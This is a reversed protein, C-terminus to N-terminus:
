GKPPGAIAPLVFSFVSGRGLTSAVEVRGEHAEVIGRAIALGLGTGRKAAGRRQWFRDFVHPLDSEAIGRGTDEVEFRVGEPVRLARLTVQGGPLTFKCANLGLNALVQTVRQADVMLRPLGPEVHTEFRLGAEDAVPQLLAKARAILEAPQEEHPEMSLRGAEINSADLLDQLMRHMWQASQGISGALDQRMEMTVDDPQALASAIMSIASLPQRLDHSVVALVIDRARTAEEAAERARREAELLRAREQEARHQETMDRVVATYVHRGSVDLHSISAEAPFLEGSKRRGVIGGREHMRRAAVHSRGFQEVDKSHHRRVSEPILLELPQGMIEEASYGFTFEAGRNFLIIRQEEDVCVIADVSIAIVDAHFSDLAALLAANGDRAAETLPSRVRRAAKPKSAPSGKRGGPDTRRRKV